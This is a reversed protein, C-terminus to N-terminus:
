HTLFRVLIWSSLPEIGPRAWHTPSRANSHSHHLSVAAAGTHGRAGPVEVHQLHPRLFFIFLYGRKILVGTM